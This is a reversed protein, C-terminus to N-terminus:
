DKLILFTILEFDELGEAGDKLNITGGKSFLSAVGIEQKKGIINEIAKNLLSSYHNMNRGNNTQQNFTDLLNKLVENQGSCLKKYYDLIKKAHLFSLKIEGNDSIYVLYYPYLPNQEKTQGQGQIQRLIFIVGPSVEDKLSEDIKTIAYLGNQADDLKNRNKKMYTMLDTKFDNFTLDTISIAGSIDELDVVEEQLRKLQKKRYELDKMEKEEGVEIVNDEGTASVDLLVMRGTVRKQLNIYEDLDLTPWFNVLQIVNNKSGIRDIRGFRQIIRVPNWHIDYNILYDCDQLNQGESICDTAILVDISKTVEPFIKKCEKSEPSFLTLVTNLDSFKIGQKQNKELPFTSKNEGSGVVLATYIEKEKLENAINDYLYKATDAFATFILVKKNANNIPNKQKEFITNKLERLKADRDPTVLIAEIYLTELKDKDAELDQKWKILDMDQLLVKVNNGFLLGELEPDDFDIENIDREPDYDFQSKEISELADNIKHMIKNATLAFSNISSEMRKLLGVRVLNVLSRERDIQRFITENVGVQMDYKEEYASRKEPLLYAIPSYIALTLKKIIKNIEGIAPFEGKNDIESYKNIPLLRTPFKGIEEMNYYKQIHKKSRAITITDLLKFYDLSMMDVFSETTRESDPLSSWNNFVTQALRLTDETNKIGVSSFADNKGETIFAIQNKIDNMRNNVPTASLMLVKTKVGSKIIDNMLRKYRTIRNKVPPNNRFNHSEDIVVLDYNSWNITALNITGSFGSTRSLDTHYLVDYHFRDEAFINRKDNQTYITWNEALKKPVLVLIRDNRLQYYKMIALATFTKGLGVSDAIICGNYKEIKDIAGMVGDKQFKYLKNWILTDKFGTKSKIIRDETLEDLYDRFVNYLSLFYIFEPTNEKYLMQMQNLVEQKVDEVATKDNWLEDFSQLFGLTHEKGYLCINSDIRTSPSIGLGDTTFDVTGNISLADKNSDIHILRPQAPNAKKLSKIEAKDSLWKACEKSVAAQTLENKLKIEFENTLAQQASKREIYFERSLEYDKKVFTPETFIFRVSDIKQLEKKLGEYAYITFYASIISLKSDKELALRLEDIVKHKKNDLLKPAKM